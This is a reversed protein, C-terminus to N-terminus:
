STQGFRRKLVLVTLDDAPQEAHDLLRRLRALLGGASDRCHKAVLSAIAAEGIRLGAPDLAARVGGSFLLLVEGPSLATEDRHFQPELDAGLPPCEAAIIRRDEARVIIAAANGALALEVHGSDPELLAYALAARQDGPSAVLLSDNVQGLLARAGHRYGSHAKIAAHLSAAGLASELLQGEADGVALALRGDPLISWDHFDGGVGAAQRTWGAVDYDDLLPAVSPLRDALWRAAAELQQDSRKAHAGTALLMERELDAALRGAIIEILNTEQPTFDRPTESFVWLTGLPITPSAVPVCVASPFDEPCRWHPL